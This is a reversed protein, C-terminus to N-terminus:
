SKKAVEHWGFDLSRKGQKYDVVWIIMETLEVSAM